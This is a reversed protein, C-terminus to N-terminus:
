KITAIKKIKRIKANKKKDDKCEVEVEGCSNIIIEVNCSAKKLKKKLKDISQRLVDNEIKTKALEQLTNELMCKLEANDKSLKVNEKKSAELEHLAKDLANMLDVNNKQWNLM